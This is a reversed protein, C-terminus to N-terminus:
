AADDDKELLKKAAAATATRIRRLLSAAADEATVDSGSNADDSGGDGGGDDGGDVAFEELSFDDLSFAGDEETSQLAALDAEDLTLVFTESNGDSGGVGGGSASGIDELFAEIEEDSLDEIDV